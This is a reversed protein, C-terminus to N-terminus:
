RYVARFDCLEIEHEELWARVRPDCLTELDRCRPLTLSTNDLLYQDLYGPHFHLINIEYPSTLLGFRDELWDEPRSGHNLIEMSDPCGLLLEHAAHMSSTEKEPAAMSHIGLEEGIERFARRMPETMASHGEFHNPYSGTLQKHRELQALTETYLDEYSPYIDGRCKPENPSEGRWRFSRYFMGDGDVLSPVDSPASVPRYQVFNTHQVLQAEPCEQNRLSVAHPAAAMNSMLSLVTVVGERYAKVAGYNYAESFGFDDAVVILKKGM